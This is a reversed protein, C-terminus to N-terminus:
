AMAGWPGGARGGFWAIEASEEDPASVAGLDRWGRLGRDLRALSAAEWGMGLRVALDIAAALTTWGAAAVAGTGAALAVLAAAALWHRNWLSWLVPAVFAGWRWRDAIVVTEAPDRGTKLHFSHLREEM